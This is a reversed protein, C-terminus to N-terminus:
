NEKSQQELSKKDDLLKGISKIEQNLINLQKNLQLHWPNLVMTQFGFAIVGIILNLKPINSKTFFRRFM